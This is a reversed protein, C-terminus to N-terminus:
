DEDLKGSRYRELEHYLTRALRPLVVEVLQKNMMAENDSGLGRRSCAGFVGSSFQWQWQVGIRQAPCFHGHFRRSIGVIRHLQCNQARKRWVPCKHGVAWKTEERPALFCCAPLVKVAQQLQRGCAGYDLGIVGLRTAAALLRSQRVTVGARLPAVIRRRVQNIMETRSGSGSIAAKEAAASVGFGSMVHFFVTTSLTNRESPTATASTLRSPCIAQNVGPASGVRGQSICGILSGLEGPWGMGPVFRKEWPRPTPSTLPSPWM